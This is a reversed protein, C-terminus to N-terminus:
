PKPNRVDSRTYLRPNLPTYPQHQESRDQHTQGPSGSPCVRVAFDSRYAMRAPLTRQQSRKSRRQVSLTVLSAHHLDETRWNRQLSTSIILTQSYLSVLYQVRYMTPDKNYTGWLLTGRIKPFERISCISSSPQAFPLALAAQHM